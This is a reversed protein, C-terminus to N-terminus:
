LTEFHSLPTLFHSVHRKEAALHAVSEYAREKDKLWNLLHVANCKLSKDVLLDGIGM